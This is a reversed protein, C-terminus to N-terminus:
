QPLIEEVELTAKAVGGFKREASDGNVYVTGAAGRGVRVKYTRATASGAAETHELVAIGMSTSNEVSVSTAALANATSDVFLGVVLAPTGAASSSGPVVARIRLISNANTPTIAVAMIETGETNQPITNDFPMDTTITTYAAESDRVVQAVTGHGAVYLGSANLTGAGKDGGTPNGILVGAKATLAAQLAGAVMTVLRLQADESANTPDDIIGDVFAYTRKVGTSSRGTFDVQGIEDAAAPSASDRFLELTPGSGAGSDTSTLTGTFGGAKAVNKHNAGDSVLRASDGPALTLTAAGDITEAGSADITLDATGSNKFTVEWGNGLAAATATYTFTRAVAGTMEIVKGRDAATINRDAAVSVLDAEVQLWARMAELKDGYSRLVEEWTTGVRQLLLWKKTSDLPFDAGDSLVLKGAGGINHRAVVTRGPAAARILLLRGEPHNGQGITDLDDSAAAAETDITHSGLTATVVGAAITLTTPTAGGPQEAIVSRKDELAQKMEAETRAANSLYGAAPLTTM